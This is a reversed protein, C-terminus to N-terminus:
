LSMVAHDRNDLADWHSEAQPQAVRERGARLQERRNALEALEQATQRLEPVAFMEDLLYAAMWKREEPTRQDIIEKLETTSM